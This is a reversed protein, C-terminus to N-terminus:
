RMMGMGDLIEKQKMTMAEEDAETMHDYGLLHLVSHVVLFCLERDVSHGYDNSQLKVKDWSLVIDGLYIEETDPNGSEMKIMDEIKIGEEFEIMPFSLVDTAKDIDRQEKNIERIEKNSVITVSVETPINITEVKLTQEISKEILMNYYESEPGYLWEIFVSM